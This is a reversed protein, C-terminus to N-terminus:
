LGSPREIQCYWVLQEGDGVLHDFSTFAPEFHFKGATLEQM